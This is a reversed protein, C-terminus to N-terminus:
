SWKTFQEISRRSLISKTTGVNDGVDELVDVLVDPRVCDARGVDKTVGEGVEVLVIVVVIVDM